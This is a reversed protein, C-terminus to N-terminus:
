PAPAPRHRPLVTDPRVLLHLRHLVARPLSSLLAALFARDVPTLRVRRDGLQHQLITVQHRLALIEADKDHESVSLLRLTSFLNVIALYAM